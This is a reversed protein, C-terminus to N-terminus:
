LVRAYIQNNKMYQLKWPSTLYLHIGSYAIKIKRYVQVVWFLRSVEKKKVNKFNKQCVSLGVLHSRSAELGSSFIDQIEVIAQRPLYIIDKRQKKM